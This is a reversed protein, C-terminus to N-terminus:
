FITGQNALEFMGAKGADSAGTFAGKEYGFLEAELLMEPLAACNISIFPRNKRNGNEHIFRSLYGKGTGSEGVILINSVDMKSLKLLISLVQKMSPSDAVIENSKLMLLNRESLESKITEAIQNAQELQTRLQKVITMDHEIVVVFKINGNKDLVPIGSSMIFKNSKKVYIPRILPKKTKIISPTLPKDIIGRKVLDRINIGIIEKKKVGILDVGVDNVKLVTGLGDLIYIGYYSHGLVAEFQLKMSKINPLEWAAAEIEELIRIFCLAGKTVNDHQVLSVTIEITKEQKKISFTHKKQGKKICSFVEDTIRPEITQLSSGVPIECNLMQKVLRNVYQICGHADIVLIGMLTKELIAEPKIIM